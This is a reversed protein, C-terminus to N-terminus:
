LKSKRLPGERPVADIQSWWPWSRPADAPMSAVFKAPRKELFSKVGETNDKSEFLENIIKSTILQAAEPSDPGRFMLDKNMAVSVTSCNAAIDQAIELARPLVQEPEVIESFLESLLPSTSPYVAGTACIHMAKSYGILRPLFFNSCAEMILGRRAFVFGIKAKNSAIRITMPLTMTIGVGVASGNIAGIVPKTCNYIALACSGGGDRHDRDPGKEKHFGIDLDAGACFMRGYGTMVVAKVRDDNSILALANVIESTMTGTFANHNNPRHLELIVVPTPTASSEPVHKVRIHQYPVKAYSAPPYEPLSMASPNYSLKSM